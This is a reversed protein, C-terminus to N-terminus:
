SQKLFRSLGQSSPGEASEETAQPTESPISPYSPHRPFNVVTGARYPSLVVLHLTSAQTFMCSLALSKQAHHATRGWVVAAHCHLCGQPEVKCNKAQINSLHHQYTSVSSLRKSLTIGKRRSPSWHQNKTLAEHTLSGQLNTIAITVRLM